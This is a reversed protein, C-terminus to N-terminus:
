LRDASRIKVREFSTAGDPMEIAVLGIEEKEPAVIEIPFEGKEDVTLFKTTGQFSLAVKSKAPARRTLAFKEGAKVPLIATEDTGGFGSAQWPIGHRYRNYVIDPTDLNKGAKLNVALRIFQAMSWALPTASGTNEGFKLEPVFQKDANPTEKRDWVQEPIMLGDNAFGLMADLRLIPNRIESNPNVVQPKSDPMQKRGSNQFVSNLNQSQLALEYQGREGSLLAWLRGKGTYKGDWNWRRGDDMEGYGDHNYRYFGDGNPTNVRIVDDVVKLSKAILPDDPSKIGLRVLELFGADVIENEIFTGGNNNLVTKELADPKGNETLRIYYNGDGYKGNMTATWMEVKRAWDDATATYILASAEDGNRRAIEAACIL